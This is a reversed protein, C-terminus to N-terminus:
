VSFVAFILVTCKAQCACTVIHIHEAVLNVTRPKRHTISVIVCTKVNTTATKRNLIINRPLAMAFFYYISVEFQGATLTIDVKIQTKDYSKIFGLPFSLKFNRLEAM